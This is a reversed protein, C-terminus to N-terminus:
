PGATAAPREGGNLRYWLSGGGAAHKGQMFAASAEPARRQLYHSGFLVRAKPNDLLYALLLYQETWYIHKELAWKAPMAYPLFVLVGLLSLVAWVGLVVTIITLAM